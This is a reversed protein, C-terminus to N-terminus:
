PLRELASRIVQELDGLCADNVFDFAAIITGDGDVVFSFPFQPRDYASAAVEGKLAIKAVLKHQDVFAQVPKPDEDTTVAVLTMGHSRYKRYLRDFEPLEELCPKCWTAWFNLLMVRNRYGAPSVTKDGALSPLKFGKVKEGVAFKKVCKGDGPKHIPKPLPERSKPEASAVPEPQGETSSPESDPEQESGSDITDDGDIVPSSPSADAVRPGGPDTAREAAREPEQTPASDTRCGLAVLLCVPALRRAARDLMPTSPLVRTM